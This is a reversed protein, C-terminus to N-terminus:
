FDCRAVSNFKQSRNRHIINVLTNTRLPIRWYFFFLEYKVECLNIILSLVVKLVLILVLLYVDGLICCL